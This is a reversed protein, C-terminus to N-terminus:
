NRQFMGICSVLIDLSSDLLIMFGDPSSLCLQFILGPSLISGSITQMSRLTPSIGHLICQLLCPGQQFLSVPAPADSFLLQRVSILLQRIQGALVLSNSSCLPLQFRFDLSQITLHIFHRSLSVKRIFLCLLCHNISGPQSILQSIFLINSLAMLLVPLKQLALSLVHLDPKILSLHIGQLSALLCHVLHLGPNPLQLRLKFSLVPAKSIGLLVQSPSLPPDLLQGISSILVPLVMLPHLGKQILELALDLLQGISSILVPLVM